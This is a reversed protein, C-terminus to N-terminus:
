GQKDFNQLWDEFSYRYVIDPKWVAAARNQIFTVLDRTDKGIIYVNQPDYFDYNEILKNTTILKKAFFMAEVVRMTLGEQYEQVVELLCRTNKNYKLVEEYSVREQHLFRKETEDYAIRDPVVFIKTDIGAKRLKKDVDQLFKLRGKDKGIFFIDSAYAADQQQEAAQYFYFQHNYQLGHKKCDEKDFSWIECKTRAKDSLYYNNYWPNYYYVIM